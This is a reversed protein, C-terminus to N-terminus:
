RRPSAEVESIRNLTWAADNPTPIAAPDGVAYWMVRGFPDTFGGVPNWATRPEGDVGLQLWGNWPFDKLKVTRLFMPSSLGELADFSINEIGASFSVNVYERRLTYGAVMARCDSALLRVLERELGVRELAGEYAVSRLRDLLADAERKRAEDPISAALLRYAQYWGSRVWRPGLWGNLAMMSDAVLGSASAAEVAIDWRTGEEALRDPRVLSRALPGEARVKLDASPAPAALLRARAAEARDAHYLYDGHLPTVPYPHLILGSDRAAMERVAGAAAACAAAEDGALGSDPNIRVIVLSGLSEVAAIGDPQPTGFQLAGGIYAQLKGATMLEAARSPAMAAIEIEHPYYSPYVPQEHGSRAVTSALAAATTVIVARRMSM